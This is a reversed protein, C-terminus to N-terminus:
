KEEFFKFVDEKYPMTVNSGLISGTNEIQELVKKISTKTENAIVLTYFFAKKNSLNLSNLTHM